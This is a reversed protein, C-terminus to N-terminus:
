GSVLDKAGFVRVGFEGGLEIEGGGSEGHTAGKLELSLNMLVLDQVSKQLGGRVHFLNRIELHAPEVESQTVQLVSADSVEVDVLLLLELLEKGSLQVQVILPINIKFSFSLSFM